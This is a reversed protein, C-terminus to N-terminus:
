YDQTSIKAQSSLNVVDIGIILKCLVQGKDEKMPRIEIDFEQLNELWNVWRGERFPLSRMM